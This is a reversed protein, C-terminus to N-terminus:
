EPKGMMKDIVKTAAESAKELLNKDNGAGGATVEGVLADVRSQAVEVATRADDAVKQKEMLSTELLSKDAKAAVLEARAQAQAKAADALKGQNEAILADAEQLAREARARDGQADELIAKTDDIIEEREDLAQEVDSVKAEQEELKDQVPQVAALAKDESAQAKALALRAEELEKLKAARQAAAAEAALRAKEADAAAKKQQAEAKAKEAAESKAESQLDTLQTAMSPRTAAGEEKALKAVGDAAAAGAAASVAPKAATPTKASSLPKKKAQSPEAQTTQLAHLAADRARRAAALARNAALVADDVALAPDVAGRQAGVKAEQPASGDAPEVQPQEKKTTSEAVAIDRATLASPRAAQAEVLANQSDQLPDNVAADRESTTMVTAAQSSLAVPQKLNSITQGVNAPIVQKLTQTEFNYTWVDGAIKPSTIRLQLVPASKAMDIEYVGRPLDPLKVLRNKELDRVKLVSYGGDNVVWAIYRDDGGLSIQEIDAKPTELTTLEGSTLDYYALAQFDRSLSTAMYFGAGDKTWNFAEFHAPDAPEYISVMTQTKANFLHLDELDEGRSHTVVVYDGGPQWAHPKWEGNADFVRKAAGGKLPQMYLDYNDGGRATSAFMFSQGDSSFDGLLSFAPGTGELAAVQTGDASILSYTDRENGDRGSRVVLAAGDPSWHFDRVSGGKTLQRMRGGTAAITWLQAAGTVDSKFAITKGDPALAPNSAARVRYFQDILAEVSGPAAAVSSATVDPIDKPYPSTAADNAFAPESVCLASVAIVSFVTAKM